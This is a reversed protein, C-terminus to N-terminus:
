IETLPTKNDKVAVSYPAVYSVSLMNVDASLCFCNTYYTHTAINNNNYYNALTVLTLICLMQTTMHAVVVVYEWACIGKQRHQFVLSLLPLFFCM